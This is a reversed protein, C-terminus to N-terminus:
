ELALAVGMDLINVTMSYDNDFDCHWHCDFNPDRVSTLVIFMGGNGNRVTTTTTITATHNRTVCNKIPQCITTTTTTTTTTTATTTTTTLIGNNNNNISRCTTM